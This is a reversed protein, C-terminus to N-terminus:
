LVQMGAFQELWRSPVPKLGIKFVSQLHREINSRVDSMNVASKKLVALSTMSVEKLGCPHIWHFPTLDLNVNLAMGHFTIGHRVAIGISGLKEGNVWVGINRSDRTAAVGQDQAARIMVEELSTVFERIELGRAKLDILLYVVQQGPGHFTVDGGREVPIVDIGQSKLFSEDKIINRRDCSRGLTFVPPHELMLVTDADLRGERRAEILGLQLRHSAEYSVVGLYAMMWDTM